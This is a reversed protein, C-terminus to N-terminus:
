TVAPPDVAAHVFIQHIVAHRLLFIMEEEVIPELLVADEAVIIVAGVLM